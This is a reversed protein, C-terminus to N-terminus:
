IRFVVPKRTLRELVATLPVFFGYVFFYALLLVQVALLVYCLKIIEAGRARAEKANHEVVDGLAGAYAQYKAVCEDEFLKNAEGTKGADLLYLVVGRTKRYDKRCEILHNFAMREAETRISDQYAAYEADVQRSDEALRAALTAKDIGRGNVAMATDIFGESVHMTALSSSTLGRLSDSVIRTAQRKILWITTVPSTVIVLLVVVAAALSLRKLPEPKM